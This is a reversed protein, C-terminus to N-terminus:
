YAAPVSEARREDQIRILKKQLGDLYGPPYGHEAYGAAPKKESANFEQTERCWESIKDKTLCGKYPKGLIRNITRDVAAKPYVRALDDYEDRTLVQDGMRFAIDTLRTEERDDMARTVKEPKWFFEFGAVKHSKGKYVPNCRLGQVTGKIRSIEEIAPNIIRCMIDCARYREPVCFIKRFRRMDDFVLHGCVKWRKVQRFLIQAYANNLQGYERFSYSTYENLLNNLLWEFDANLKVTLIKEAPNIIFTPFLEVRAYLPRSSKEMEIEQHFHYNKFKDDAMKLFDYVYAPTKKALGLSDSIEDFTFNMKNGRKDYLSIFLLNLLKDEKKTLAKLPYADNFNNHYRVIANMFINRAAEARSVYGGKKLPHKKCIDTKKLLKKQIHIKM